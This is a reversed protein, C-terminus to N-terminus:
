VTARRRGVTNLCHRSYVAQQHATQRDAERCQRVAAASHPQEPYVEPWAVSSTSWPSVIESALAPAVAGVGFSASDHRCHVGPSTRLTIRMRSMTPRPTPSPPARKAAPCGKPAWTARSRLNTQKGRRRSSRSCRAHSLAEWPAFYTPLTRHAM